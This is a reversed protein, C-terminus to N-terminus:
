QEWLMESDQTEGPALVIQKKAQSSELGRFFLYVKDDYCGSIHMRSADGDVLLFKPNLDALKKPIQNPPFSMALPSANKRQADLSHIYEYLAALREKPLARLSNAAEVNGGCGRTFLGIFLAIALVIISAIATITLLVRRLKM